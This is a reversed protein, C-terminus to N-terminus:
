HECIDSQNEKKTICSPQLSQRGKYDSTVRHQIRVLSNRTSTMWVVVLIPKTFKGDELQISPAELIQFLTFSCPLLIRPEQILGYFSTFSFYKNQYAVSIQSNTHIVWVLLVLCGFSLASTFICFLIQSSFNLLSFTLFFTKWGKQWYIIQGM